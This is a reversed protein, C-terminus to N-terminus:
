SVYVTSESEMKGSNLFGVSRFYGKENMGQYILSQKIQELTHSPLEDSAVGSISAYMFFAALSCFKFASELKM